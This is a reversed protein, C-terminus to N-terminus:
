EESVPIAYCKCNAHIPLIMGQSFDHFGVADDCSECPFSSGRQVIYGMCGDREMRRGFEYMWTDAIIYRSLRNIRNFASMGKHSFGKWSTSWTAALGGALLMGKVFDQMEDKWMGTYVALYGDYDEGNREMMAYNELEDESDTANTPQVALNVCSSRVMGILWQIVEDVEASVDPDEDFTFVSANIHLNKCFDIIREAAERIYYSLNNSMAIEASLRDKIYDEAENRTIM